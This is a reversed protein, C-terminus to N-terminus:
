SATDNSEESLTMIREELSNLYESVSWSLKYGNASLEIGNILKPDEGFKFENENGALKNVAHSLDAQQKKSLKFASHVVVPNKGSSLMSL